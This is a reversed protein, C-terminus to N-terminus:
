IVITGDPNIKSALKHAEKVSEAIYPEMDNWLEVAEKENSYGNKVNFAAEMSADFDSAVQGIEEPLVVAYSYFVTRGDDPDDYEAQSNVRPLDLAAAINDRVEESEVWMGWFGSGVLEGTDLNKHYGGIGNVVCNFNLNKAILCQTQDEPVAPMLADLPNGGGAERVANAFELLEEFSARKTDPM